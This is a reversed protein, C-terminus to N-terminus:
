AGFKMKPIAIYFTTGKNVESEFWMKGGFHGKITSYSMYLGLGTGNKGKTTVMEKFLRNRISEQIGKGYDKVSFEIYNNKEKIIFDIKGEKGEYADIANIIINNLVQVLSNIEGAIRTDPSVQIDINLICHQTKLEHKMLVEVKNTLEELTFDSVSSDSLQVAQGKVASIIDSMYSCHPKIKEIWLLMEDAIEYHDDKTVNSDDISEKYENILDRLAELGGSISMIPTKMNHAIGGMLQGLSALREREIIIAQQDRVEQIHLKEREQIKNFAIVLDGIEDNSTVALKKDFDVDEGNGIETLGEAVSAIEGTMSSSFCYLVFINFALLAISGLLFVKAAENPIVLFKVGVTWIGDDSNIKLVAGHIEGDESYARGDYKNALDEAYMTLGKGLESGDSTIIRGEPTIVFTIDKENEFEITSLVNFANQVNMPGNFDNFREELQSKYIRFLLYSKEDIVRSYGLLSTFSVSVVFMPLIHLFIKGKLGMRWGQLTQGNYTKILINKFISKSFLLLIIGELSILAFLMIIIKPIFAFSTNNIATQVTLYTGSVTVIFIIQTLYIKYPLNLCKVRIQEIKKQSSRDKLENLVNFKNIDRLGWFLFSGGVIIAFSFIVVYQWFYSIAGDRKLMESVDPPYNLIFPILRYFIIATCILVIVYVLVISLASNKEIFMNTKKRIFKIVSNDKLGAM